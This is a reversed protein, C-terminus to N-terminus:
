VVLKLFTNLRDVSQKQNAPFVSVLFTRLLIDFHTSTPPLQFSWSDPRATLVERAAEGSTQARKARMKAAEGSLLAGSLVAISPLSAHYFRYAEYLSM